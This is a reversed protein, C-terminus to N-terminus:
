DDYNGEKIGNDNSIVSDDSSVGNDNSVGHLVKMAKSAPVLQRFCWSVNNIFNYDYIFHVSVLNKNFVGAVWFMERAEQVETVKVLEGILWSSDDRSIIFLDGVKVKNSM